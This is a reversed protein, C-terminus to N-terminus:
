RMGDAYDILIVQFSQDPLSRTFLVELAVIDAYGNTKSGVNILDVITKGAGTDFNSAIGGPIRILGQMPPGKTQMVITVQSAGQLRQTPDLQVRQWQDASVSIGDAHQSSAAAKAADYPAFAITCGILCSLVRLTRATSSSRNKIGILLAEFRTLTSPLRTLNQLANNARPTRCPPDSLKSCLVDGPRLTPRM